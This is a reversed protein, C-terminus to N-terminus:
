NPNQPSGCTIEWWAAPSSARREVIGDDAVGFEQVYPLKSDSPLYTSAITRIEPVDRGITQRGEKSLINSPPVYVSATAAPLM